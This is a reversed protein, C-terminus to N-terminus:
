LQTATAAAEYEDLRATLFAILDTTV